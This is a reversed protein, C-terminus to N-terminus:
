TDTADHFGFRLLCSGDEVWLEIRDGDKLWEKQSSIAQGDLSLGKSEPQTGPADRLIQVSARETTAALLTGSRGFWGGSQVEFRFLATRESVVEDSCLIRIVCATSRGIALPAAAAVPIQGNKLGLLGLGPRVYQCEIWTPPLDVPM